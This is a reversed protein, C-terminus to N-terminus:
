RRLRGQHFLSDLILRRISEPRNPLDSQSRRFEDIAILIEARLRVNVAEGDVPPRGRKRKRVSDFKPKM